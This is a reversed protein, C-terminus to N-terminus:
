DQSPREYNSRFRGGQATAADGAAGARVRRGGTRLSAELRREYQPGVSGPSRDWSGSGISASRGRKRARRLQESPDAAYGYSSCTTTDSPHDRSLYKKPQSCCNTALIEREFVHAQELDCRPSCLLSVELGVVNKQTALALLSDLAAVLSDGFEHDKGHNKKTVHTSTHDRRNM